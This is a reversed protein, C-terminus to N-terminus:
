PGRRTGPQQFFLLFAELVQMFPFIVSLILDENERFEPYSLPILISRIQTGGKLRASQFGRGLIWEGPKADRVRAGIREVIDSISPCSEYRCDVWLRQPSNTM